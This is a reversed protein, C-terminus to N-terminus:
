GPVKVPTYKVIVNMKSLATADTVATGYVSVEVLSFCAELPALSAIASNYDMIVYNIQTLVSLSDLSAIQNRTGNISSLQCDATFAPLATVQNNAFNLIKLGIISALSNIEPLINNSVNIETLTAASGLNTITSIQNNAASLIRIAPLTELGELASLSNYDLNLVELSKCGTLAVTSSISNYSVDLEVMKVCGTLATLQTVANHSLNLVTLEPLKSLPELDRITNNNLDLHTLSVAASLESISSLNCRPLSLNTLAPLSAIAALEDSTLTVGDISLTKLNTLASLSILNEYSGQEITLTELFSVMSLESLDAVDPTIVLDTISWLENTYLIHESSVDLKQRLLADLGPDTFTVEEIVGAVTYGLVRLPSVLGNEGVALAYITNEGGSLTIPASYPLDKVSPYEGDDSWYITHESSLSVDIYQNYYGDGPTAEPAKPRMSELRAKVGLDAINDLMSVADLLKDQEVYTKCLAVYLDASGGDSIANSLTYEAKTYNGAKKFQEALEIAVSEDEGSLRYALNYYFASLRHSGREDSTRAHHLLFDQTFDRDYRFLYWGISLIVVLALLVPVLIKIFKKM